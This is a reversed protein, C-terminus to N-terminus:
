KAAEMQAAIRDAIEQSPAAYFEHKHLGLNTPTDWDTDSGGYSCYLCGPRQVPFTGGKGLYVAGDPLKPLGEPMVPWVHRNKAGPKRAHYNALAEEKTNGVSWLGAAHDSINDRTSKNDFTTKSQGAIWVSRGDEWVPVEVAPLGVLDPLQTATANFESVTQTKM